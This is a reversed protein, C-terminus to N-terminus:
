LWDSWSAISKVSEFRSSFPFLTWVFLCVSSVLVVVSCTLHRSSAAIFSFMCLFPLAYCSLSICTDPTWDCRGDKPRKLKLSRILTRLCCSSPFACPDFLLNPTNTFTNQMQKLIDQFVASAEESSMTETSPRYSLWECVCVCVCVCVWACVCVCVCVCVPLYHLCKTM